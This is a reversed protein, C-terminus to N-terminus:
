SQIIAPQSWLSLGSPGALESEADNMQDVAEVPFLVDEVCYPYPPTWDERPATFSAPDFDRYKAVETSAIHLFGSNKTLYRIASMLIVVLREPTQYDGYTLFRPDRQTNSYRGRVVMAVVRRNNPHIIVSQVKGSLGDRFYIQEGIVPQFFRQDEAGSDFGPAQVSNIVGRVGPIDAAYKEALNRVTASGVEGHLGVVGNQVGTFFKVGYVHEIKGLAGAVVRVLQDDAVLYSKVGLVGPIQRAAEKARQQNTTSIVHGSLFVIHDKVDVHIQGYDTSRLVDNNWLARDVQEAISANTKRANPDVNQEEELLWPRDGCRSLDALSVQTTQATVM